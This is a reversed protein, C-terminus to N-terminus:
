QNVAEMSLNASTKMGVEVDSDTSTQAGPRANSVTHIM